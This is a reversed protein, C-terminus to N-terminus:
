DHEHAASIPTVIIFDDEKFVICLNLIKQMPVHHFSSGNTGIIYFYSNICESLLAHYSSSIFIDSFQKLSPHNNILAFSSGKYTFFYKISGFLSDHDNTTYQVFYSVTSQRKSYHLSHYIQNRILCRRYVIVCTTTEDCGCVNEHWTSLEEIKNMTINSIDFAGEPRGLNDYNRQHNQKRL